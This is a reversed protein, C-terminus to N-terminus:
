LGAKELLRLWIESRTPFAPVAHWLTDLPVEGVVAITAAQLFDQVDAGTITAGVVLGRGDDIVLRATGPAGRGYFSGGANGSTTVDVARAQVGAALADALTLGVAAVQPETFTVRPSRGGDLRLTTPRGLIDDAAIRAQYKGMHTLLARGNMDGIAYLWDRGPVRMTDEVTVFGGADPKVGVTVLGLDDLPVHRGAAVVLEAAEVAGDDGELMVRVPGAGGDREVRLIRVGTRVTVGLAETAETVEASAFPEEKLLLREAVELLTVEAGLTQWAQAMEAGIPGGGIVIISAPVAKATTIERNTWPVAGELGDIPPLAARSGVALVVATRATLRRGDELLVAKEGDLAATGRVLTIGREEIWSLQVSDDLDHIVEDRRALVAAADVTGTVAEAAGPIRRAEALAQAPRLLAKSPMCGYFSCEGGVLHREVLAVELGADALRGAAVEGAPGAGLVIVDFQEASM